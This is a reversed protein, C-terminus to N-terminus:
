ARAASPPPVSSERARRKRSRRRVCETLTLACASACAAIGAASAFVLAGGGRHYAAGWLLMGTVSGAGFATALLGQATGLSRAPTQQQAYAVASIWMLGFSLAHLPQLLLLVPLSHVSAIIAWRLAAAGLALALLSAPPFARFARAASAMLVVECGTGIAWALGVANRSSGLDFLYLTFCLDYSAHACQGLFAAVLFTKFDPYALLERAGHRDGRRHLEARAPIGLSALLAACLGGSIVVPFPMVTRPDVFRAAVLVAGLFGVSGWLRHRGYSTGVSRAGEIATLDALLIMPARFLALALAAALLTVLGLPVGLAAAVTLSGWSVLAGLCVIQLLGGRLGLTDSMAGFAAPALVGMAPSAAAVLGLEFGHMGRAELWRPFFPLYVGGVAFAAVYYVRLSMSGRM